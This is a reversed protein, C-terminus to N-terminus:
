VTLVWDVADSSSSSANLTFTTTTKSTVWFTKNASAGLAVRYVASPMTYGFTVVLTTAAAFTSTGNISGVMTGDQGSTPAVGNDKTFFRQTASDLWLHSGLKLHGSAYNSTNSLNSIIVNKGASEAIIKYDTPGGMYNLGSGYYSSENSFIYQSNPNVLYNTVSGVTCYNNQVIPPYSGNLVAGGQIYLFTTTSEVRNNLIRLGVPMTTTPANLNILIANTVGEFNNCDIVCGNPNGSTVGDSQLQIATYVSAFSCNTIHTANAQGDLVVGYDAVTGDGGTRQRTTFGDILTWYSSGNLYITKYGAKTNHAEMSCKTIRLNAAGIASICGQVTTNNRHNFQLGEIAVGFNNYSNVVSMAYGTVAATAFLTAGYGSIKYNYPLTSSVTCTWTSSLLYNGPPIFVQGGTEKVAAWAATFAATMDTTGPITNSGYDLVNVPAGTILSYSAKTLAM